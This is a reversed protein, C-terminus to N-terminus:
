YMYVYMRLHISNREKEKSFQSKLILNKKFRSIKICEKITNKINLEQLIIKPPLTYM